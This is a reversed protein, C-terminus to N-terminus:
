HGGGASHDHGIHAACGGCYFKGDAETMNAKAMTMGCGGACDIKATDGTASEIKAAEGIASEMKPACGKCATKGGVEAADTKAITAKCGDCTVQADAESGCGAFMLPLTLVVVLLLLIRKM